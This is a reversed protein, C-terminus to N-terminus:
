VVVRLALPLVRVKQPTTAIVDGDVQIQLLPNTRIEVTEVAWHTVM